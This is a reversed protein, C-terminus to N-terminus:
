SSATRILFSILSERVYLGCLMCFIYFSHILLIVAHKNNPNTANEPSFLFFIRKRPDNEYNTQYNYAVPMGYFTDKM